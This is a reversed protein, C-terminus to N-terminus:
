DFKEFYIDEALIGKGQAKEINEIVMTKSGCLFVQWQNGLNGLHDGIHGIKGVWGKDPKSLVLDFQFNSFNKALEEFEDIWFLDREYRMGWLLRIQQSDNKVELLYKIISRMPAIGSGTALLLIKKNTDQVGFKGLPGMTEIEQNEKLALFYKSGIGMPAVDVVLDLEKGAPMSAISYLRQLGSENVKVGLYQGPLFEYNEEFGLRFTWYSGAINKKELVKAKLKKIM